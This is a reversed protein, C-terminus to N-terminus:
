LFKLLKSIASKANEAAWRKERSDEAVVEVIEKDGLSRKFMEQWDASDMVMLWHDEPMHDFHIAAVPTAHSLDSDRKVQRWLEQLNIAKVTKIEICLNKDNSVDGKWISGGSMTNRM